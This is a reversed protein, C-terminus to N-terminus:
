LKFDKFPTNKRVWHILADKDSFCVKYPSGDGNRECSEQTYEICIKPRKAHITCLGDDDLAKCRTRFEIYWDNDHDMFVIINDHMLYWMINEFDEKEEPNDLQMAVHECCLTCNNCLAKNVDSPVKHPDKDEIYNEILIKDPTM